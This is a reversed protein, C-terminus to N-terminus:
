YERIHRILCHSYVLLVTTLKRLEKLINDLLDGELMGRETFDVCAAAPKDSLQNTMLMQGLPQNRNSQCWPNKVATIHKSETISSCLGNPAGFLQILSPYHVMDHQRPSSIGKKCVGSTIFIQHFHHFHSLADELEKVHDETIIDQCAIYCFKLFARLTCVM